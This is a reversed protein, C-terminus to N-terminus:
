IPSINKFSQIQNLTFEKENLDESAALHSFIDIESKIASTKKIQFSNM